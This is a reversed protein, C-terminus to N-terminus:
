CIVMLMNGELTVDKLGKVGLADLLGTLRSSNIAAQSKNDILKERAGIRFFSDIHLYNDDKM